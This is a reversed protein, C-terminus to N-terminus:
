ISGTACNPCTAICDRRTNTPAIKIRLELVNRCRYCKIRLLHRIADTGDKLKVLYPKLRRM